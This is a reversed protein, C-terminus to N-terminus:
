PGPSAQPSPSWRRAPWKRLVKRRFGGALRRAWRPQRASRLPAMITAKRFRLHFAWSAALALIRPASSHNRRGHTEARMGAPSRKYHERPRQARWFHDHARADFENVGGNRAGLLRVMRGSLKFPFRRRLM